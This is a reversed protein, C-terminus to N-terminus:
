QLLKQVRHMDLSVGHVKVRLYLGRRVIIMIINKSTVEILVFYQFKNIATIELRTEISIHLLETDSTNDSNFIIFEFKKM